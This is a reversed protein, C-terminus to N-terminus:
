NRNTSKKIQMTGKDFKNGTHEKYLKLYKQHVHDPQKEGNIRLIKNTMKFSYKSDSDILGDQMLERELHNNFNEAKWRDLKENTIAEIEARYARAKEKYHDLKERYGERYKHQIDRLHDELDRLRDKQERAISRLEEKDIEIDGIDAVFDEFHDEIEEAWDEMDRELEETEIELIENGNEDIIIMNKGEEVEQENIRINDDGDIEITISEGDTEEITISTNGNEDIEKTIKRHKSFSGKEGIAPPALIDISPATPPAPPAPPSPVDMLDEILEEYEDLEEEPIKEGDIILETIEGDIVDIKIEGEDTKKHLTQKQNRRNGDPVTDQEINTINYVRVNVKEKKPLETKIHIVKDKPKEEEITTITLVSSEETIPTPNNGFSLFVIAVLLLCTATFKEMINFRNQPQNLIRKVRNLLNQKPGSFLMAFAPVKQDLEQLHVLAKAYELSSGCLEVAIDDCCNERELRINGSIWWVAPNFYFLVEIFSQVINILYDNRYIHALEHALIAEVEKEDLANIAGIPLLIMPKVAGIIMPMTVLASEVLQISKHVPIKQKLTVLKQQWYFPLPTNQETKLKYVHAFGGIMRIAFLIAGFFWVLVITSIHQDFFASFQQISIQFFNYNSAQGGLGYLLLSLEQSRDIQAADYVYIFTSLAFIFVTFLSFIGVEYRLKASKDRLLYMAAALCIAILAGQWLSHVVTWGLAYIIEDSIFQQIFDM